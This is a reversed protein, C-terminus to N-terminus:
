AGGAAAAIQVTYSHGNVNLKETVFRFLRGEVQQGTAIPRNLQPQPLAFSHTQWFAPRYLPDGNEDYVALYDGSREIGFTAKLQERLQSASANKDQVQLLTQLDVVQSELDDDVMDYLNERLIFWMGAGFVLEGLAFIALYWLTLRVGISLRKM